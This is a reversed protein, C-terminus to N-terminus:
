HLPSDPPRLCGFNSLSLEYPRLEFHWVNNLALRHMLLIVILLDPLILLSVLFILSGIYFLILISLRFIGYTVFLTSLTYLHDLLATDM